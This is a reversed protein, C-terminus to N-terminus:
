AIRRSILLGFGSTTLTSHYRADAVIRRAYQYMGARAADHGGPEDDYTGRVPALADDAVLVDGIALRDAVADLYDPYERKAGDLFVFTRGTLEIGSLATCADAEIVTARQGVLPTLADRTASASRADIELCIISSDPQMATAMRTASYGKLSGVEVILDPQHILVLAALIDGVKASVAIDGRAPDPYVAEEARDWGFLVRRYQEALTM